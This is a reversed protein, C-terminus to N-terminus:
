ALYETVLSKLITKWTLTAHHGYKGKFKRLTATASCGNKYHFKIIDVREETSYVTKASAMKFSAVHAIFNEYM